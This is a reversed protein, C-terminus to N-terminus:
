KQGVTELEAGLVHACDAAEVAVAAEVVGADVGAEHVVPVRDEVSLYHTDPAQAETFLLIILKLERKTTQNVVHENKLSCLLVYTRNNKHVDRDRQETISFEIFAFLASSSVLLLVFLFCPM